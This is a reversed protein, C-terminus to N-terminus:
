SYVKAFANTTEGEFTQVMDVINDGKGFIM